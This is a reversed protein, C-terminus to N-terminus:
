EGGTNRPVVDIALNLDPIRLLPNTAVLRMAVRVRRVRMLDADSRGSVIDTGAGDAFYTVTMAAVGELMPATSGTAEERRILQRASPDVRYTRVEGEAIASGPDLACGALPAALQLVDGNVAAIRLTTRCGTATFAIATSGAAFGCAGQGAPCADSDQVAVITAGPAVSMATRGQADRNTTTWVTVGDDFSPVLPPFYRVLPGTMEATTSLLAGRELGAGADRLDTGLSRLAIRARQQLDLAEPQVQAIRNGAVVLSLITGGLSVALAMSVLMELLTM